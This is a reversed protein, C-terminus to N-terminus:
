LIYTIFVGGLVEVFYKDKFRSLVVGLNKADEIDRPLKMYQKESEEVEPFCSYVCVLSLISFIFIIVLIGIANRTSIGADGADSSKKATEKAAKKATRTKTSGNKM